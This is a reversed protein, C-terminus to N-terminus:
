KKTVVFNTVVDIKVGMADVSSNLTGKSNIIMGNAIDFTSTLEGTMIPTMANMTGMAAQDESNLDMGDTGGFTGMDFQTEGDGSSGKAGGEFQNANKNTSIKQAIVSQTATLTKVQENITYVGARVEIKDNLKVDGEPLILFQLLDYPIIDIEDSEENEKIEVKKTKALTTLSYGAKMKGTKPDFEAYVEAKEGDVEIGGSGGNQNVKAYVLVNSTPTTVLYVKKLFTFNGKKDVTVESKIANKPVNLISAVSIGKANKVNFNILYLTGSATGETDVTKIALVFDVTTLYKDQTNMGMVSTSINDTILAGFTYASNAKWKYNLEIAFSYSAIFVLVLLTSINKM